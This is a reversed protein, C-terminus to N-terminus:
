IHILSLLKGELKVDGIGLLPLTMHSLPALDGSAGVSGQCPIIPLCDSNLMDVFRQVVDLRIGSYGKSLAIIKLLIVLITINDPIPEGVGVAHSLILNKQLQAIKDKPIKVQSLKGFGTNVGYIIKDKSIADDLVKRSANIQLQIEESLILTPRDNLYQYIDSLSYEKNEVLFTAM